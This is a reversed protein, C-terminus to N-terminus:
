ARHPSLRTVMLMGAFILIFGVFHYYVLEEHLLVKGLIAGYVPLLYIFIVTRGPGLLAVAKNWALYAFISPFIAFYTFAMAIEPTLTFGGQYFIEVAILPIHFLVGFGITVFLFMILPLGTKKWRILVTYISWFTLACVVLVDGPNLSLSLLMSPDGRFIIFLAGVISISVGIVQNLMPKEKLFIVVFLFTVVPMASNIISANTVTTYHM